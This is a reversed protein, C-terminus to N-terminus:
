GGCITSRATATAQGIAPAHRIAGELYTRAARVADEDSLGRALFAAIASSLTCGTGHTNPGPLRPGRVEFDGGARCAVDISEAGEAHGGKILVVRPGLALIRRGAEHMDDLTRVPM